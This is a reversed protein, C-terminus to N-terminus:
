KIFSYLAVIFIFQIIEKKICANRINFLNNGCELQLLYLGPHYVHERQYPSMSFYPLHRVILLYPISVFQPLVWILYKPIMWPENVTREWILCCNVVTICAKSTQKSSFFWDRYVSIINHMYKVNYKISPIPFFVFCPIPGSVQKNSSVDPLMSPALKSSIIVM